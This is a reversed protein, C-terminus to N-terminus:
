LGGGGTGVMGVDENEIGSQAAERHEALDYLRTRIRTEDVDRIIREKGIAAPAFRVQDLPDHREHAIQDRACRGSRTM